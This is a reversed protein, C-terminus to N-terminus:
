DNRYRKIINNCKNCEKESVLGKSTGYAYIEISDIPQMRKDGSSSLPIKNIEKTFVNHIESKFRQQTKLISKNNKIFQKKSKQLSDINIKNKELYEIKNDLQTVELCNKYNEFKLKRKTGKAKKDETSDDTLYGYTKARLAVFKTMNKRILEDKKLGIVKKPM